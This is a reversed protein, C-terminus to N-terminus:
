FEMRKKELELQMEEERIRKQNEAEKKKAEIALKQTYLQGEQTQVKLTQEASFIKQKTDTEVRRQNFATDRALKERSITNQTDASIKEADM